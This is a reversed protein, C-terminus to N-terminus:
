LGSRLDEIQAKASGERLKGLSLLTDIASNIAEDLIASTRSLGFVGRVENVLQARSFANGKAAGCL